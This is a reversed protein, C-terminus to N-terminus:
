DDRYAVPTSTIDNSVENEKKERVIGIHCCQSDAVVSGFDMDRFPRLSHTCCLAVTGCRLGGSCQMSRRLPIHRCQRRDVRCQAALFGVGSRVKQFGALNSRFERDM